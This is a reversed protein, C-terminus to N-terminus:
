FMRMSPLARPLFSTPLTSPVATPWNRMVDTMGSTGWPSADVARAVAMPNTGARLAGIIDGYYGNNLTNITANIGQQPSTYNWVHIPGNKTQITNYPTAGAMNQMTMTTNFPNNTATGSETHAWANLASLNQPTIPAGVGRLIQHQWGPLQPVAM